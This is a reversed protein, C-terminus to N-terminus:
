IYGRAVAIAVAQTRTTAGLKSCATSSRLKVTSEAVGLLAATESHQLGDRYARLVDIEKQTLSARNMLLQLWSNFRVDYTVLEDETFERDGRAMSLFSKKGNARNAFVAGYRIGHQKAKNMVGRLDPIKIGSWRQFGSNHSMVWLLVPDGVIYNGQEYEMRWADSYGVFMMEPGNWSYNFGLLWGAPADRALQDLQGQFGPIFIEANATM